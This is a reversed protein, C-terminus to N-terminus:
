EKIISRHNLVEGKENKIVLQYLGSALIHSSLEVLNEGEYVMQSHYILSRGTMDIVEVYIKEDVPSYLSVNLLEEFPIPWVNIIETKANEGVIVTRSYQYNGSMDTIKLRYYTNEEFPNNDNILYTSYEERRPLENALVSFQRGNESKELVFESINENFNTNWKIQNYGDKAEAFIDVVEIALPNPCACSPTFRYGVNTETWQTPYNHGGPVVAVTGSYNHLGLIAAGSNWSPCLTKEVISFEIINTTEYLRMEGNFKSSNCSSSFMAVNNFQLTFVRNPSTGTTKYRITGTVSPDIDQWTLLIANRPADTTNPIAANISWPSYGTPQATGNPVVTYCGPFVIYGNSSVLAQTYYVNDYCFSFGLSTYSDAFRDDSFSLNTWGGAGTTSAAISSLSYNLNCTPASSSSATISIDFPTCQPSPFTSVTIYYTVGATLAVCGVSPNGGSQTNSAVCTSGVLNPCGQTIFVGTYTSTNSLVVDISQNTSPTYSYVFDDGNMYSSGCTSSSSFDDGFGCTTQGSSSYPLSGIVVANGCNSGAGGGVGADYVCISFTGNNNNGYEWFRIWITSGPTLGSQQIMPMAGNASADDDCALLTLSGCTGSYIAMGGDTVVGTNTNFVLNGSAPVTISFWVDGGNYNACGPAPAGVTATADANTSATYSCTAGVTLPTANCPDDNAPAAPAAACSHSITFTGTTTSSSLYSGVYIFYNVGNTTTFSYTETTSSNDQCLINTLSGCSGSYIALEMDYSPNLTITSIQGNGTFAYWVGYQSMTCTNVTEPASNVTTGALNTTGCPLATANACDDNAPPTPAAVCTRSITFTGTTTSSSSYHAIYVYYNVGNTTTFTYTETGGSLANDQCTVNSLSGCSGSTIAMEHDFTATSSITTSQGDGVFTYWVGYSSMTCGTGHTESVSAATTGALNTTGCPLATANVCEDNTPGGGGGSNDFVCINFTGTGSSFEWVRIYYTTGPTLGTAVINSMAGSGGDDDCNVETFSGCTGSYLSMGSDTMSGSSLDITVSGSAPATFRFWVDPAGPSACSPTGGNNANSAYTAGVTTGASYSCSSNVTLVTANPNGSACPTNTGQSFLIGSAFVSIITFVKRM